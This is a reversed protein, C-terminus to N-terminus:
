PHIDTRNRWLGFFESQALDGLTAASPSSAPSVVVTIEAPGEPVDPPLAIRLERNAPIDAHLNLTTAM